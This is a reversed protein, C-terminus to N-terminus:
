KFDLYVAGTVAELSELDEVIEPGPVHDVAIAMRADKGEVKRGVDMRSINVNKSALCTGVHGIAGPVDKHRILLSEGELVLDLSFGDLEVMNPEGHPNLVGSIRRPGAALTLRHTFTRPRDKTVKTLSLGRAEALMPANILTVPQAVTPELMGRMIARSLYEWDVEAILGELNVVVDGLLDPSLISFLHGMRRGLRLFPRLAELEDPEVRPLNVANPYEGALLAAVMQEAIAEGVAAQAERTSAGLHPTLLFFPHQFSRLPSDEPLPETSYVDLAAGAIEQSKLAELLDETHVLDGRAVNILFASNKMTAFSKKHMLHRTESTKPAHLTVFDSRALLDEFEVREAGLGEVVEAPAYPDYVLLEMEFAKARAAVRSGIKGLGVVGLTKGALQVGKLKSRNWAGSIMGAHAEPIRRVLSLMLAMTHEAAALTNGEPVNMVLIGKSNATSVDVNDYGVGARGIAKLKKAAEIAEKDLQTKSRIVVGEVEALAELLQGRDLGTGDVVEVNKALIELGRPALEEAVLVRFKKAESM